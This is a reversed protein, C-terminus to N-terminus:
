PVSAVCARSGPDGDLLYEPVAAPVVATQWPGLTISWGDGTVTVSGGIATVVELSLGAPRRRIPTDLAVLELRFERVSLGDGDLRWDHGAPIANARPNV